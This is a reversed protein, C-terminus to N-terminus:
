VSDRLNIIRFVKYLHVRRSDSREHTSKKKESLMIAESNMWATSQKMVCEKKKGALSDYKM